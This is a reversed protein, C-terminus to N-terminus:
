EDGGLDLVERRVQVLGSSVQWNLEWNRTDARRAALTQLLAWGVQRMERGQYLSFVWDATREVESSEALHEMEHYGVKRAVKIGERSIQHALLCSLRDRGTSIMTKLAHTVDRIQQHRPVRTDPVEIFTLQDLLLSDAGRLQAERVMHEVSRQGPKPQIVWLDANYRDVESIWRRVADVEEPSCQGHQWRTSDVGTAMCAIRDMTMEVSNELTFLAVNRGRQWERLAVRDLLYSKGVKAGAALVALEGPQIGNTHADVESLGFLMGRTEGRTAERAEYADMREAMGETAEVASEHSEMSMSLSVLDNAISALAEIKDIGEAESMLVAAAKLHQQFKRHVYSTKLDDVAWEISDDPDEPFTIEHDALLDEWATLMAARSPAKTRGGAHYYDMAFRYVPRLAETPIVEEALGERALLDLSDPHILHQLLVKQGHGSV